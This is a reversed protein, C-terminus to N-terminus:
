IVVAALFLGSGGNTASQPETGHIRVLIWFLGLFPVVMPPGPAAWALGWYM